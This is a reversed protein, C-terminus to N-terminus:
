VILDILKKVSKQDIVGVFPIDEKNTSKQIILCELEEQMLKLKIKTRQYSEGAQMGLAFMITGYCLLRFMM